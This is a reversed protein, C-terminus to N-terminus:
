AVGYVRISGADFSGASLTFTISTTATTITSVAGNANIGSAASSALDVFSFGTILTAANVGSTIQAGGNVSVSANSGSNHSVGVFVFVLFSYGTLTLSSLTQSTGSTTTLTGLLTAWAASVDGSGLLSNGNVTKINTGSVLTAQKGNLETQLDAQDSLTGGINGWVPAGFSRLLAMGEYTLRGDPGVYQIEKSVETM